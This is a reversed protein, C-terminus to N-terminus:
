VTYCMYPSYMEIKSGRSLDVYMATPKKKKGGQQRAFKLARRVIEHRCEVTLQFTYFIEYIQCGSM